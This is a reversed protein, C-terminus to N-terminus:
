VAVSSAVLGSPIAMACDTHLKVTSVAGATVAMDGALPATSTGFRAVTPTVKLLATLGDLMWIVTVSAFWTATVPVRTVVLVVAVNVGEAIRVGPM